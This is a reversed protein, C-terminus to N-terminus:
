VACLTHVAQKTCQMIHGRRVRRTWIEVFVAVKFQHRSAGMSGPACGLRRLNISPAPNVMLLVYCSKLCATKSTQRLIKQLMKHSITICGLLYWCGLIGKKHSHMTTGVQQVYAIFYLNCFRSPNTSTNEEFAVCTPDCRM